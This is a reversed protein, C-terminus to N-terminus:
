SKRVEIGDRVWSIPIMRISQVGQHLFISQVEEQVVPSMRERLFLLVTPGSGSIAADGLKEKKLFNRVESFGKVRPERYPQHIADDLALFFSERDKQIISGVLFAIRSLNFIVKERPYTDPLLRRMEETSLSYEPVCAVLHLDNLFDHKQFRIEKGINLVITFGGMFAPLLNDPHGELVCAIQIMEQIGLVNGAIENAAMVGAAICSASSGLGRCVPIENKSEVSLGIGTFGIQKWVTQVTRFFLNKEDCALYERGEGQNTMTFVRDDRTEVTVSYYLGLALGLVDFGCAINATTAPVRIEIM